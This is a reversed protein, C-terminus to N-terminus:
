RACGGFDSTLLKRKPGTDRNFLDLHAAHSLPGQRTDYGRVWDLLMPLNAAQEAPSPYKHPEFPRRRCNALCIEPGPDLFILEPHWPFTAAILDPYCGEVIWCSRGRCFDRVLAVREPAPREETSGDKWFIPDLDLIDAHNSGGLRRALTSKGSGSNGILAIRM